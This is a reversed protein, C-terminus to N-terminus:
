GGISVRINADTMMSKVAMMEEGNPPRCQNLTYNKQLGAYKEIAIHHYPLIDIQIINPLAGAWAAIAQINEKDDTIGPIIPFRIIIPHGAHSLKTFNELILQNSVGVYARHQADDMIKLDFLFLDVFPRLDNIAEWKAYGCTDLATHISRKKCAALIAKAFAAQALPEGGSLTVGGNSQEYFSRDKEIIQLVDAWTRTQGAIERADTFCHTLCTGCRTCIDLDTSAGDGMTIAKEPCNEACAGCDLCRHRRYLVEPQRDQSEPNHCWLCTLPCGKLFVTTRIGPGDNTSFRQINFISGTQLSENMM